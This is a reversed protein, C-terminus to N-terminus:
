GRTEDAEHARRMIQYSSDPAVNVLEIGMHLLTTMAGLRAGETMSPPFIPLIAVGESTRKALFIVVVASGLEDACVSDLLGASEYVKAFQELGVCEPKSFRPDSEFKSM